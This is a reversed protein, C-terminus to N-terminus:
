TRARRASERTLRIRCARTSTARSAWPPWRRTRAQAARWPRGSSGRSWGPRSGAGVWFGRSGGISSRVTWGACRHCSRPSWAARWRRTGTPTSNRWRRPSSRRRSGKRRLEGSLARSSRQRREQGALWQRAFDRDDVLRLRAFRELLEAAVEAPVRKRALIAALEARSRARVTLARLAIERAVAQPDADPDLSRPDAGGPEAM